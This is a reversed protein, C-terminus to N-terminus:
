CPMLSYCNQFTFMFHWNNKSHVYIMELLIFVVKNGHYSTMICNIVQKIIDM